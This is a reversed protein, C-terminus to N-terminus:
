IPSAPPTYPDRDCPIPLAISEARGELGQCEISKHLKGQLVAGIVQAVAKRLRWQVEAQKATVRAIADKVTM